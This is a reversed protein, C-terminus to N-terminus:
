RALSSSYGRLAPAAVSVVEFHRREDVFQSIFAVDMGLADRVQELRRPM